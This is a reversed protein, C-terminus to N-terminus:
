AEEEVLVRDRVEQGRQLVDGEDAVRKLGQSHVLELAVIYIYIYIYIHMPM